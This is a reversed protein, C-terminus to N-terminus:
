LESKICRNIEEEMQTFCNVTAKCVKKSKRKQIRIDISDIVVKYETQASYRFSDTLSYIYQSANANLCMKHKAKNVKPSFAVEIYDYFCYRSARYEDKTNHYISFDYDYEKLASQRNEKQIYFSAAMHIDIQQFGAAFSIMACSMILFFKSM